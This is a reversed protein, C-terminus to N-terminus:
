EIYQWIYGGASKYIGKCCRVIHSNNVGTAREAEMVSPYEMILGSEKSISMVPKSIKPNNIRSEAIRKNRTGYNCNYENSCFELNEVCNNTKDEDKHNVFPLNEPNSIFAQAVLRHIRYKKGKSDKSLEVFLYGKDDKFAKLMREKGTRNYNLSKVRGKSSVQYKGEFGIIDRWEEM